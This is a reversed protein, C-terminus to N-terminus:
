TDAASTNRDTGGQCLPVAMALLRADHPVPAVHVGGWGGGVAEVLRPGILLLTWRARDAGATDVEQAFRRAAEGSHLATVGGGRLTDDDDFPVARARYVVADRVEIRDRLDLPVAAEGRLRLLRAPRALSDVLPQLGGQGVSAVTFGAARAAEATTEGVAHVPLDRMGSLAAGGHRFVNASGVLLADFRGEPLGWAVPEIVTLPRGAVSLGLARAAAASASWGPEPRWLHLPTM